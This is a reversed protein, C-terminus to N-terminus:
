IMDLDNSLSMINALGFGLSSGKVFKAQGGEMCGLTSAIQRLGLAIRDNLMPRPRPKHSAVVKDCNLVQLFCLRTLGNQACHIDM